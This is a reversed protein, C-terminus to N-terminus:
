KNLNIDKTLTDFEKAYSEIKQGWTDIFSKTKNLDINIHSNNIEIGAEKDDVIGKKLDESFNEAKTKFKGAMQQFFDKTKNTDIVIKGDNSTIGMQSLQDDKKLLTNEKLKEEKAKLEALLEAKAQQAIKADHEAQSETKDQCGTLLTLLALLMFSYKINKM